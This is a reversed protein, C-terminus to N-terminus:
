LLERYLRDIDDVLRDIGYRAVVLTRGREGMRRCRSPEHLLSEVHAALASADGFPALLGVADNEIVDRVGGVDTSVGPVGSALSEILAVPTGENRSTLLFVDSAAYITALDRRWGLFRLRSALGAERVLTTLADRMEGDGAILFLARPNRQAVLAAAAIFLDHQKIATLRGVTTVVQASEDLGLATRADLRARDDIAALHALDFGLPVVRYQTADGIGYAGALERQIRPSIAVIRDTAKALQREIGVFFRTRAPSFYGELVHGHYTHVVRARSGRGATANYIAAASRGLTGAKATHTHVIHPRWDRLIDLLRVLAVTDSLPSVPRVLAALQRTHTAPALLYGMDGEGEGLRGHVLRTDFGRAALRESLAIAQISPGGINLRTIVRLVRIPGDAGHPDISM